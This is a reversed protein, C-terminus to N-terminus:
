QTRVSVGIGFPMLSARTWVDRQAGSLTAMGKVLGDAETGFSWPGGSDGPIKSLGDMAMLNWNTFGNVTVIVFTSFVDDCTRVNSARGFGCSPTNVPLWWSVTNVARLDNPAAFYEAPEFHTTTKWEMDGWFGRHEAQHQMDYLLGDSPQQYQNLGSCHGATAVGTRTGDTVTFASTCEFVGDDFLRAGGRTHFDRAVPERSVSVRVGAALERPLRPPEDGQVTVLIVDEATTATTLERHGTELLYDHVKGARERLEVDSFRAGGVVEVKLRAAEIIRSAEAPPEGVFRISSPQGPADAYVAAAYREPFTEAIRGVLSAFRRSGQLHALAPRLEWDRQKALIGADRLEARERSVAPPADEPDHDRGDHASAAATPLLVALALAAIGATRVTRATRTM